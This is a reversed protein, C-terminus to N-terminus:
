DKDPLVNIADMAKENTDVLEIMDNSFDSEREYFVDGYEYHPFLKPMVKVNVAVLTINDRGGNNNATDILKNTVTDPNQWNNNVIEFIENDKVMDTLGDSCLIIYCDEKLSIFNTEPELSDGERPGLAQTLVKGWQTAATKVAEEYSSYGDKYNKMAVNHDETVQKIESKTIMYIRSDGIHSVYMKDDIIMSMVVTTGMRKELKRNQEENMQFISNNANEIIATKILSNIDDFGINFCLAPLITSKIETIAKASAVEGSEHGGMGDCVIYLGRKGKYVSNISDEKFDITSAYFNDENNNRRKGPHTSSSHQLDTVPMQLLENIKKIISDINDIKGDNINKILEGVKYKSYELFSSNPPFLLQSWTNSLDKINYAKDEDQILFKIKINMNDNVFIKYIDLISSLVSQKEFLKYLESWEKLIQLKDKESIEVWIEPLSKLDQGYNDKITRLILYDNDNYSFSDYIQPVSDHKSLLKYLDSLTKDKPMEFSFTQHNPKKDKVVKDFANLVQYRGHLDMEDKLESSTIIYLERNLYQGCSDCIDANIDLVTSCASCIIKDLSMQCNSCNQLEDVSYTSCSPCIQM